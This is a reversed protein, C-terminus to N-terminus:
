SAAANGANDVLLALAFDDQHRALARKAMAIHNELHRELDIDGAGRTAKLEMSARAIAAAEDLLRQRWADASFAPKLTDAEM